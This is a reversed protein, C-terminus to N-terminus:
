GVLYEASKYKKWGRLNFHHREGQKRWEGGWEIKEDSLAVANKAFAKYEASNVSVAKGDKYLVIDVATGYNHPSEGGKCVLSGKKARGANSEAVTRTVDSYVLTMGQEAAAQLLPQQQELWEPQCKDFKSWRCALVTTGDPLTTEQVGYKKRDAPSVDNIDMVPIPSYENKVKNAEAINIKENVAAIEKKATEVEEKAVKIEEAQIKEYEQTAENFAKLANKTAESCTEEVKKELEAKKEELETKKKELNVKEKELKELQKKYENLTKTEKDVVKKQESIKTKLEKTQQEIKQDKEKDGTKAPLNSLAANLADLTSQSTKLSEEADSIQDEKKSIEEEKKTIQEKNEDIAKLNNEIDQKFEKAANDKDLADLYEQKTKDVNAKATKITETNGSQANQLNTQKEKLVEQRKTKEAQLEELTMNDITKVAPEASVLDNYSSSAAPASYSGYDNLVPASYSEAFATNEITEAEPVDNNTTNFKELENALDIEYEQIAKTFDEISLKSDDGDMGALHKIYDKAEQESIKGDSDADVKNKVVDFSFFEKLIFELPSLKKDEGEDKNELKELLKDYDINEVEEKDASSFISADNLKVDKDPNDSKKIKTNDIQTEVSKKYDANELKKSLYDFYDM